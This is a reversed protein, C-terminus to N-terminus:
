LLAMTGALVPTAYSTGNGIRTASGSGAAASVMDVGPAAIDPKLVADPQRPGRASFSAITDTPVTSAAVAIVGDAAAPADVSATTDGTNGASAVVTIGLRTAANAAATTTDLDNFDSGLSLNIVDVHDSLDGDGNPDVAWELAADVYETGQRACGFVRLAYVTAEPAIGPEIRLANFPTTAAYPGTYPQGNSTVGVGAALNAVATGHGNAACDLPDPDPQATETPNDSGAIYADGVFDYGGGVKSTPFSGPEIIIPNNQTFAAPTGAGGFAAHTYDVGSDIIAITVGRGTASANADGWVSPAGIFPATHTEALYKPVLPHIAKVGPLAWIDELHEVPVRVVISNSLRQMRYLVRAHLPQLLSILHQQTQNIQRIQDQAARLSPTQQRAVRTAPTAFLAAAPPAALEIVVSLHSTPQESLRAATSYHTQVAISPLVPASTRSPIPIVAALLILLVVAKHVVVTFSLM